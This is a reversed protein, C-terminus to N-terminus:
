IRHKTAAPSIFYIYTSMHSEIKAQIRLSLFFLYAAFYKMLSHSSCSASSFYYRAAYKGPCKLEYLVAM